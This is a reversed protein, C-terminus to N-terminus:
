HRRVSLNGIDNLKLLLNYFAITEVAPYEFFDAIHPRFIAQFSNTNVIGMENTHLHPVNNNKLGNNSIPYPLLGTM